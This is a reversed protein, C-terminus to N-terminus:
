KQAIYEPAALVMLLAAQVRNRRGTETGPNITEVAAQLSAITAAPVQGAALVLNIEDLLARANPALALLGAHDGRVDGIGSGAVARQMYNLYGAVSTENAIQLEPATLGAAAL